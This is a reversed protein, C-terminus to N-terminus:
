EVLSFSITKWHEAKNTKKPYYAFILANENISKYDSSKFMLIYGSSVLSHQFTQQILTIKIWVGFDNISYLSNTHLVGALIKEILNNTM